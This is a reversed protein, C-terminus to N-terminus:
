PFVIVLRGGLFKARQRCWRHIPTQSAAMPRALACRANASSVTETGTSVVESSSRSSTVDGTL